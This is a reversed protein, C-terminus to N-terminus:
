TPVDDVHILQRLPIVISNLMADLIITALKKEIDIYYIIGRYGKYEGHNSCTPDGMVMVRSYVRLPTNATLVTPVYAPRPYKVISKPRKKPLNPNYVQSKLRWRAQLLAKLSM